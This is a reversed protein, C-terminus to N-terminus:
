REIKEVSKENRQRNLDKLRGNQIKQQRKWIKQQDM